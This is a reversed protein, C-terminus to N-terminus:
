DPLTPNGHRQWLHDGQEVLTQPDPFPGAPQEIRGHLRYSLHIAIVKCRPMSIFEPGALGLQVLSEALDAEFGYPIVRVADGEGLPSHRHGQIANGLPENGISYGIHQPVFAEVTTKHVHTLSSRATPACDSPVGHCTPNAMVSSLRSGSATSDMTFRATAVDLGVPKTKSSSPM